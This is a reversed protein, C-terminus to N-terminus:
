SQNSFFYTIKIEIHRHVQNLPDLLGKLLYPAIKTCFFTDKIYM